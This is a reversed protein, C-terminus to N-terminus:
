AHCSGSFNILINAEYLRSASMKQLRRYRGQVVAAGEEGWRVTKCVTRM